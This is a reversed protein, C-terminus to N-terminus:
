SHMLGCSNYQIIHKYSAHSCCPWTLDSSYLTTEGYSRTLANYLKEYELGVTFASDDAKLRELVQAHCGSDPVKVTTWPNSIGYSASSWPAM